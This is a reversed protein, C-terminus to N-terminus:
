RAVRWGSVQFPARFVDPVPAFLVDWMLLAFLTCFTGNEAHAACPWGQQTMYHELAYAEVGLLNQSGAPGAEKKKAAVRPMFFPKLADGRLQKGDIVRQFYANTLIFYGCVECIM